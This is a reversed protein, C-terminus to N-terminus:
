AEGGEHVLPVGPRGRGSFLAAGLVREGRPFFMRWALVAFALHGVTMLIGAFSRSWLFPITYRMVDLFPVNPDNMMLGEVFGGWTLGIWYALIGVAAGWFHVKILRPSSWERGTLRPMIYYIAGFMVMTFFGYVGLHAHGVTYHTFHTVENVRRLAEISGQYSVVTYAMGGFVIFRLSPSAKLLHFYGKMTMHHNLGVITVPIFMMISGVIGVTIFWAPLPGGILHHTGAFNYFLALTWFGLLSLYYSYIPRGLIKPLIYYLTAIGIPTFWLGLVNHGFWWNAAAQVVGRALNGHILANAMVYLFPFWLVAGLLYWQSVYLTRVRRGTFMMMSAAMVVAFVGAFLFSWPYPFELWEVGTSSGTLISLIGGVVGLNWLACGVILLGQLPLRVRALRAQLWLLVGVGAMSAWGYIVANLHAPRVRGFTLWEAGALFGPTHMKISALLALVSGALLWFIASGFFAMVPWACSADVEGRWAVAATRGSTGTAGEMPPAVASM